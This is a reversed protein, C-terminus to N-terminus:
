SLSRYEGECETLKRVDNRIMEALELAADRPRAAKTSQEVSTDLEAHEEPAMEKARVATTVDILAEDVSVAQLEDAYGMLVTYFSLSFKKYTDFEYRDM